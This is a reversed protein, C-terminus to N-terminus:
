DAGALLHYRAPARRWLWCCYAAVGLLLFGEFWPVTGGRAAPLTLALGALGCILGGRWFGRTWDARVGALRRAEALVARDTPLQGRRSARDAQQHQEPTLGPAEGQLTPVGRRFYIQLAAIMLGSALSRTLAPVMPHSSAYWEVAVLTSAAVVLYLLPM